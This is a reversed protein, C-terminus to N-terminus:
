EGPGWTGLEERIGISSQRRTVEDLVWAQFDHLHNTSVEARRKFRQTREEKKLFRYKRDWFTDWAQHCRAECREGRTGASLRNLGRALGSSQTAQSVTKARDVCWDMGPVWRTAWRNAELFNVCADRGAMPVATALEVATYLNKDDIELHDTALIYNTCFLERGQAPLLRRLAQTLTKLTWVRGPEVLLLFDVDGDPGVSNKSLSGTIFVGEVFPLGAVIRAAWRAWPWLSEAQRTRTSRREILESKGPLTQYRDIPFLLGERELNTCVRAVAEPDEPAVFRTIEELTLPHRFVDFYLILRLVHIRLGDDQHNMVQTGGSM